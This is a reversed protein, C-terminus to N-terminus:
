LVGTSCEESMLVFLNTVCSGISGAASCTLNPVLRRPHLNQLPLADLNRVM